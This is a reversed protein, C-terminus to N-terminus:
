LTVAASILLAAFIAVVFRPERYELFVFGIVLWAVAAALGFTL